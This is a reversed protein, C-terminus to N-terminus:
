PNARSYRTAANGRAPCAGSLGGRLLGRQQSEPTDNGRRAM